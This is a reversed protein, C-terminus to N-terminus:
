LCYVAADEGGRKQRVYKRAIIVKASRVNKKLPYNRSIRRFSIKTLHFLFTRFLSLFALSLEAFILFAT